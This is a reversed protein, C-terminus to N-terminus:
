YDPTKHRGQRHMKGLHISNLIKTKFIEKLSEKAM